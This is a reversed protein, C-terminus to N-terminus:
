DLCQVTAQAQNSPQGALWFGVEQMWPNAASRDPATPRFNQARRLVVYGNACLRAAEAEVAEMRTDRLEYAPAGGGTGL